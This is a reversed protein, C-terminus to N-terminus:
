TPQSVPQLGPLCDEPPLNPSWIFLSCGLLCDGPRLNPFRIFMNCGQGVIESPLNQYKFWYSNGIDSVFPVFCPKYIALIFVAKSYFVNRFLDLFRIFQSCGQGVTGM